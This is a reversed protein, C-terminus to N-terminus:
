VDIERDSRASEELALAIRVAEVGDEATVITPQRNELACLAFYSLEERLAGYVSGRLRPEYGVDPNEVGDERWISLGSHLVDINAVGSTTIVQMFDDLFSTKDPIVWSTQILALAGDRFKMLGCVLDAGTEPEITVEYCRVSRVRGMYWLITDIDHISTELMLPTRKYVSGQWKPRNRRAYISLIRGLRGAELQEKVTAYKTEFRLLHGPMLIRDAERAALLMGEADETKTAMPKEVFVHKGNRLASLVPEVHQNETSAVSVADVHRSECIEGFDKAVWDVGYRSALEKARDLIPDAVAMVRVFPIGVMTALHSEGFAGCGILGIRLVPLKSM